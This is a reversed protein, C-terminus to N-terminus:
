RNRMTGKWRWPTRESIEFATTAFRNYICGNEVVGKQTEFMRHGVSDDYKRRTLRGSYNNLEEFCNARLGSL